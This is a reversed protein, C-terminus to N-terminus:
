YSEPHRAMEACFLGKLRALDAGYDGSPVVPDFIQAVKRRYDLAVPVVPAGAACAIRYFGTKWQDVKRRTGEPALALYFRARDRMLQTAHGTLGDPHARDVPIGGLCRLITGLPEWFSTHKALWHVRAGLALMVALGVFVDLACTHPAAIAVLKPVNPVSGAVRWGLVRLGIRGIGRTLANGWRPVNSGIPPVLPPVTM